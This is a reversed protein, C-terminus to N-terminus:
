PVAKALLVAHFLQQIGPQDLIPQAPGPIPYECVDQDHARQQFQARDELAMSNSSRRILIDPMM